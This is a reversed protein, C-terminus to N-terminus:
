ILITRVLISLGVDQDCRVAGLTIFSRYAAQPTRIIASGTSLVWLRYPPQIETVLSKVPKEKERPPVVDRDDSGSGDALNAAFHCIPMLVKHAVRHFPLVCCGVLGVTAIFLPLTAGLIWVVAVATRRM